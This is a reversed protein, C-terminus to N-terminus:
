QDLFAQDQDASTRDQKGPMADFMHTVYRGYRLDNELLHKNLTASLDSSKDRYRPVGQPRRRMAALVAWRQPVISSRCKNIKDVIDRVPPVCNEHGRLLSSWIADYM